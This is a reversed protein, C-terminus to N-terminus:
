SSSFFTSIFLRMKSYEKRAAVIKNVSEMHMVDVGYGLIYRKGQSTTTGRNPAIHINASSGLNCEIRKGGKKWCM